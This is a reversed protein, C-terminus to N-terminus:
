SSRPWYRMGREAVCFLLSSLILNFTNVYHM